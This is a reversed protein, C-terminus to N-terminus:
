VKHVKYVPLAKHAKSELLAKLAKFVPLVKYVKLEL